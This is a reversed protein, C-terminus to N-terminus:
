SQYGKMRTALDKAIDITNKRLLADNRLNEPEVTCIKQELEKRMNELNVDNTLNLAPLLGVLETVNSILSDRFTSKKKNDPNYDTLKEIIHNVADYTRQWVKSMANQLNEKELQRYEAKIRNLEDEQLDLRFDSIHPIPQTFTRFEFKDELVEVSPYDSEKYMGNLVIKADEKLQPYVALFEAVLNEHLERHKRAINGYEFINDNPLIALDNTWPATVKYHYRRFENINKNIEKLKELNLLVKNWRGSDKADYINEVKKTVDKDYKRATWCRGTFGMLVCTERLDEKHKYEM